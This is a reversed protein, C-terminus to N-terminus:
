LFIDGFGPSFFAQADAVSSLVAGVVSHVGIRVESEQMRVVEGWEGTSLACYDVIIAANVRVADGCGRVSRRPRWTTLGHNAFGNDRTRNGGEGKIGGEPPTVYYLNPFRVALESGRRSLARLIGSGHAPM